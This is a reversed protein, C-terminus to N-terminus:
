APAHPSPLLPHQPVTKQYFVKGSSIVPIPVFVFLKHLSAEKEGLVIGASFACPVYISPNPRPLLRIFERDRAICYAESKM